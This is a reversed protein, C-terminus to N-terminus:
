LVEGATITARENNELTLKLNGAENLGAFKGKYTTQGSKVTLQTGEPAAHQQWAEIITKTNQGEQWIALWHDMSTMLATHLQSPTTDVGRAALSTTQRGDIKPCAAINVGIGIILDTSPEGIPSPTPVSQAEILIGALKAPGILVDNPWKLILGEIPGSTELIADKVALATVLAATSLTGADKEFRRTCSTYLNGPESIWSRGQRGRGATQQDAIVWFPPTQGEKLLTKAQTNTSDLSDYRWIEVPSAETKNNIM